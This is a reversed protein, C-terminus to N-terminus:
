TGKDITEPFLSNGTLFTQLAFEFYVPAASAVHNHSESNDADASCDKSRRGNVNLSRKIGLKHRIDLM